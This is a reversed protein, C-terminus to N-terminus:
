TNQIPMSTFSPSTTISLLFLTSRSVNLSVGTALRLLSTGVEDFDATTSKGIHQYTIGKEWTSSPPKVERWVDARSLKKKKKQPGDQLIEEVVEEEPVGVEGGPGGGWRPANAWWKGSGPLEEERGERARKQALLLMLGTEKLLDMTEQKGEGVVEDAKRFCTQDRCWVGMVPGEKIGKKARDRDTPLRYVSGLYPLPVLMGQFKLKQNFSMDVRCRFHRVVTEVFAQVTDERYNKPMGCGSDIRRGTYRTKQSKCESYDKHESAEYDAEHAKSRLEDVNIASAQNQKEEAPSESDSKQFYNDQSTDWFEAMTMLGDWFKRFYVIRAPTRNPLPQQRRITCFADDNDYMLEKITEHFSKRNPIPTGNSLTQPSETTGPATQNGEDDSPDRLWSPPPLYKTPLLIELPQDAILDINLAQLHRANPGTRLINSFVNLLDHHGDLQHTCVSRPECSPFDLPTPLPPPERQIEKEVPRPALIRWNTKM